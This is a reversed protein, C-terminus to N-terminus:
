KSGNKKVKKVAKVKRTVVKSPVKKALPKSNEVARKFVNIQMLSQQVKKIIQDAVKGSANDFSPAPNIGSDIYVSRMSDQIMEKVAQAQEPTLMKAKLEKKNM